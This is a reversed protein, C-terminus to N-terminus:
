TNEQEDIPPTQSTPGQMRLTLQEASERAKQADSETTALAMNTKRIAEQVPISHTGFTVMPDTSAEYTLLERRLIDAYESLERERSQLRSQLRGMDKTTDSRGIDRTSDAGKDNVQMSVPGAPQPLSGQDPLSKKSPGYNNIQVGKSPPGSAPGMPGPKVAPVVYNRRGYYYGGGIGGGWDRGYGRGSRHGGAGHGGTGHGAAAATHEGGKAYVMDPYLLNGLVVVLTLITLIRHGLTHVTVNNDMWTELRDRLLQLEAVLQSPLEQARQLLADIL